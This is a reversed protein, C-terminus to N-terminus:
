LHQGKTLKCLEPQKQGWLKWVFRDKNTFCFLEYEVLVQKNNAITLMVGKVLDHWFDQVILFTFDLMKEKFVRRFTCYIEPQHGWCLGTQHRGYFQHTGGLYKNNIGYQNTVLNWTLWGRATAHRSMLFLLLKARLCMMEQGLNVGSAKQHLAASLFLNEFYKEGREIKDRWFILWFILPKTGKWWVGDM